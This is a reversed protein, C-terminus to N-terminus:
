RRRRSRPGWRAARAGAPDGARRWPSQRPWCVSPPGPGAHRPAPPPRGRGSASLDRCVAERTACMVFAGQAICPAKAKRTAGVPNSGASGGQSPSGIGTPLEHTVGFGNCFPSKRTPSRQRGESTQPQRTYGNHVRYMRSCRPYPEGHGNGTSLTRTSAPRTPPCCVSRCRM